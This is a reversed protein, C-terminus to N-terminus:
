KTQNHQHHNRNDYNNRQIGTEREEVEDRIYLLIEGNNRMGTLLRHILTASIDLRISVSGLESPPVKQPHKGPCVLFSEHNEMPQHHHHHRPMSTAKGANKNDYSDIISNTELAIRRSQESPMEHETAIM